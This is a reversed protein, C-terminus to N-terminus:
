PLPELGDLQRYQNAIDKDDWKGLPCHTIEVRGMKKPNINYKLPTKIEMFCGCVSCKDNKADYKDCSRCKDYREKELEPDNLPEVKLIMEIGLKILRNM